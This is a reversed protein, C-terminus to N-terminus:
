KQSDRRKSKKSDSSFFRLQENLMVINTSEFDGFDDAGIAKLLRKRQEQTLNSMLKKVTDKSMKKLLEDNKRVIEASVEKLKEAQDDSMELFEAFEPKSIQAVIGEIKLTKRTMNESMQRWMHEPIIDRIKETLRQTYERHLKSKRKNQALMAEVNLTGDANRIELREATTQKNLETKFRSYDEHLDQLLEMQEDTLDVLKWNSKEMFCSALPNDEWHQFPNPMATQVREVKGKHFRLGTTRASPLLAPINDQASIQIESLFFFALGLSFCLSRYHSKM